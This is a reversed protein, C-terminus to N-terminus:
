HEDGASVSIKDKPNANLYDSSFQKVLVEITEDLGKEVHTAGWIVIGGTDWTTATCFRKKNDGPTNPLAVRQRLFINLSGSLAESREFRSPVEMLRLRVYLWSQRMIPEKSDIVRVGNKRLQKEVKIKVVDETLGFRKFLDSQEVVPVVKVGRLGSLSGQRDVFTSQPMISPNKSIYELGAYSTLFAQKLLMRGPSTHSEHCESCQKYSEDSHNAILQLMKDGHCQYCLQPMSKILMSKSNTQHSTHCLLCEGTAVPGHVWGNLSLYEKHCGYCLEPVTAVLNPEDTSIKESKINHCLVCNKHPENINQPAESDDEAAIAINLIGLSVLLIVLMKVKM